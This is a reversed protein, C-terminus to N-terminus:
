ENADEFQGNVRASSDYEYARKCLRPAQFNVAESLNRWYVYLIHPAVTSNIKYDRGAVTEGLVFRILAIENEFFNWLSGCADSIAVSRGARRM